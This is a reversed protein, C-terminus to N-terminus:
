RRAGRAASRVGLVIPLGVVFVHGVLQIHFNANLRPSTGIRSLPMVVFAMTLWVLMGFAAATLLAGGPRATLARLAPLRRYALLYLATWAFAVGFHMALGVLASATGGRVAAERGLLAVAVGQFVGAPTATRRVVSYALVAFLGDLVGVLTGVPLVVSAAGRDRAPAHPLSLTSM